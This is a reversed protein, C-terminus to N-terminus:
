PAFQLQWSLFCHRLLLRVSDRCKRCPDRCGEQAGSAEFDRPPLTGGSKCFGLQFQICICFCICFVQLYLLSTLADTVAYSSICVSVLQSSWLIIMGILSSLFWRLTPLEPLNFVSGLALQGVPPIHLQHLWTQKLNWNLVLSDKWTPLFLCWLRTPGLAEEPM